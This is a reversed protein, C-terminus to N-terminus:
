YYYRGNTNGEGYIHHSDEDYDIDYTGMGRLVNISATAMKFTLTADLGEIDFFGDPTNGGTAALKYTGSCKQTGYYYESIEDASVWKCWGTPWAKWNGEDDYQASKYYHVYDNVAFEDVVLYVNIKSLDWSDYVTVEKEYKGKQGVTVDYIIKSADTYGEKYRIELKFKGGNIASSYAKTGMKAGIIENEHNKVTSYVLEEAQVKIEGKVKFKTNKTTPEEVSLQDAEVNQTTVVGDSLYVAQPVNLGYVAKVTVYKNNFYQTYTGEFPAISVTGAVGGGSIVPVSIEYMGDASTEAVFTRAGTTFNATVTVKVGAPAAVKGDEKVGDKEVIGAHYTIKGKVTATGQYDSLAADIPAIIKEVRQEEPNVTFAKATSALYLVKGDKELRIQDTKLTGAIAKAGAPVEFSFAGQADTSDSYFLLTGVKGGFQSADVEFYVRQGPVATEVTQAGPQEQLYILTGSVTAKKVKSDIVLESQKQNECGVLALMALAAFLFFKKM